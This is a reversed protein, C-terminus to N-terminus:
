RADSRQPSPRATFEVHLQVEDGTTVGLQSPAAIGYVSLKVTGDGAVRFDSGQPQVSLAISFPRACGRITLEGTMRCQM